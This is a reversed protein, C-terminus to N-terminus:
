CVHRWPNVINARRPTPRAENGPTMSWEIFQRMSQNGRLSYNALIELTFYFTFALKQVTIDNYKKSETFPM